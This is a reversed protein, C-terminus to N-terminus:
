FSINEYDVSLRLGRSCDCKINQIFDSMRSHRGDMINLLLFCFPLLDFQSALWFISRLERRFGIALLVFLAIQPGKAEFKRVKEIKNTERSREEM